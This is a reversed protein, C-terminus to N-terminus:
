RGAARGAPHGFAVVPRERVADSFSNHRLTDADTRATNHLFLETGPDAHAPRPPGPYATADPQQPGAPRRGTRRGAPHERAALYEGPGPDGTAAPAPAAPRGAPQVM